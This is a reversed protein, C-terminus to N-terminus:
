RTRFKLSQSDFKGIEPHVSGITFHDYGGTLAAKRGDPYLLMHGSTADTVRGVATVQVGKEELLQRNRPSISFLLEFDEGGSLAFEIPDKGTLRAADRVAPDIPIDAVIIEAGTGSQDCIHNVEAALGDSIDIMARAVPAIVPSVDLRCGPALHKERLDNPPDLGAVLMALGAASGGLPGTVCLLEGPSAHSRLRLNEPSVRGLLTISITTVVGHTTDGGALVVGYRRCAEAMGRYLTEVWAVDTDATLALSVFMFTPTGGMAAIDSVNCAVSKIGVQVPTAWDRRFHSTEVLMDTTVLLYDGNPFSGGIVAADDGIGAVLDPHIVPSQRALRDILAFEGGIDHIKM